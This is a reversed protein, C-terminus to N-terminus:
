KGGRIRAVIERCQEMDFAACGRTGADLKDDNLMDGCIDACLELAQAVMQVDDGKLTFSQPLKKTAKKKAM